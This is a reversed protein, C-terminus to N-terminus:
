IELVYLTPIFPKKPALSCAQQAGSLLVTINCEQSVFQTIASQGKFPPYTQYRM